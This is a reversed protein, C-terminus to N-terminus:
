ENITPLRKKESETLKYQDPITDYKEEDVHEIMKVTPKAISEDVPEAIGVGSCTYKARPVVSLIRQMCDNYRKKYLQNKLLEKLLKTDSKDLKQLGSGLREILERANSADLQKKEEERAKKIDEHKNKFDDFEGKLRKYADEWVLRAETSDWHGKQYAEWLYRIYDAQRMIWQEEMYGKKRETPPPANATCIRIKELFRKFAKKSYQGMCIMYRCVIPFEDMFEKYHFSDRFFDMKKQDPYEVFEPRNKALDKVVSWIENALEILTEINKYQQEKSSQESLKNTGNSLQENSKNTGNSPQESLKNTGNSLQKSAKKKSKKKKKKRTATLLQSDM